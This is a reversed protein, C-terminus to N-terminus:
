FEIDTSGDDDDEFDSHSLDDDIGADLLGQMACVLRSMYSYPCTSGCVCVYVSEDVCVHICVCTSRFSPSTAASLYVCVCGYSRM